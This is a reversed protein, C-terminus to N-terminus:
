ADQQNLKARKEALTVHGFIRRPNVCMHCGSRGCNLAKHKVMHGRQKASLVEAKENYFYFISVQKRVKVRNQHRRQPRASKDYSM